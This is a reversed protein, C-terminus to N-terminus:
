IGQGESDGSYGAIGNILESITGANSNGTAREFTRIARNTRNDLDDLTDRNVLRDDINIKDEIKSLAENKIPEYSPQISHLFGSSSLAYGGIIVNVLFVVVINGIWHSKYAKASRRILKGLREM